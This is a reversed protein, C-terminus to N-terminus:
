LDSLQSYCLLIQSISVTNGMIEAKVLKAGLRNMEEETLLPVEEEEEESESESRSYVHLHSNSPFVSLWSTRGFMEEYTYTDSLM